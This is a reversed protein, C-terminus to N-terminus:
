ERIHRPPLSEKLLCYGTEVTFDCLAKHIQIEYYYEELTNYCHVTNLFYVIRETLFFMGIWARMVSTSEFSQNQLATAADLPAVAYSAKPIDVSRIEQLSTSDRPKTQCRCPVKTSSM